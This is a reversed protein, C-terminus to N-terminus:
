RDHDGGDIHRTEAVGASAQRRRRRRLMVMAGWAIVVPCVLLLAALIATGPSLGFGALVAAALGLALLPCMWANRIMAAKARGAFPKRDVVNRRAVARRDYRDDRTSGSSTM